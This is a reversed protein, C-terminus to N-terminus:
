AAVTGKTARLTLEALPSVSAIEHRMMYIVGNAPPNPMFGFVPANARWKRRKDKGCLPQRFAGM